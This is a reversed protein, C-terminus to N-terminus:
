DFPTLVTSGRVRKEALKDDDLEWVDEEDLYTVASKLRLFVM